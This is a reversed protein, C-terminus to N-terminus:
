MIHDVNYPWAYIILFFLDIDPAVPHCGRSLALNSFNEKFGNTIDNTHVRTLLLSTNCYDLLIYGIRAAQSARPVNRVTLSASCPAIVEFIGYHIWILKQGHSLLAACATAEERTQFIKSRTM